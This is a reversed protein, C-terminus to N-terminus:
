RGPLMRALEAWRDGGGRARFSLITRDEEVSWGGKRAGPALHNKWRERCQKGSRGPLRSAIASWGHGRVPGCTEVSQFLAVDEEATWPGKACAMDAAGAGVSDRGSEVDGENEGRGAAGEKRVCVNGCFNERGCPGSAKRSVSGGEDREFDADRREIRLIESKSRPSAPSRVRLPMGERPRGARAAADVRRAVKMPPGVVRPPAGTQPYHLLPWSGPRGAAYNTTPMPPAFGTRVPHPLPPLGPRHPPPWPRPLSHPPFRTTPQPPPPLDRAVVAEHARPAGDWRRSAEKRQEGAECAWEHDLCEELSGFGGRSCHVCLLADKESSRGMAAALRIAESGDYVRDLKARRDSDVNLKQQAKERKARERHVADDQAKSCMKEHEVCDELREFVRVQCIECQYAVRGGQTAAKAKLDSLSLSKGEGGITWDGEVNGKGNGAGNGATSETSERDDGDVNGDGCGDTGDSGKDRDPRRRCERRQQGISACREEHAECDAHSEFAAGLCRECQWLVPSRRRKKGSTAEGGERATAPAGEPITATTTAVAAHAETTESPTAAVASAPSDSTTSSREEDGVSAGAKDDGGGNLSSGLGSYAAVSEGAHSASPATPTADDRLATLTPM